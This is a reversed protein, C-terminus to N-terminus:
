RYWSFWVAATNIPIDIKLLYMIQTESKNSLCGYKIVYHGYLEYCYPSIVCRIVSSKHLVPKLQLGYLILDVNQGILMLAHRYNQSYFYM